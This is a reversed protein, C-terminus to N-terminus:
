AERAKRAERAARAKAFEDEVSASGVGQEKLTDIARWTERLERVLGPLRTPDDLRVVDIAEVLADRVMELDALANSEPGPLPPPPAPASVLPPQTPHQLAELKRAEDRQTRAEDRKAKKCATCPDEDRRLHRRYAAPTGCPSPPRPM